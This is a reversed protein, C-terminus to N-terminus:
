IMICEVEEGSLPNIREEEIVILCNSVSMQVLNGSSELGVPSASVNGNEDRELFGRIFHRKSDTKVIDGRLIAKVSTLEDLGFCKLMNAKVLLYFTVLSSVPNGPLGFVPQLRGNDRKVGFLVPKGPKINIKHFVTEIGLEGSIDKVFDYKGVSVGGTTVLVDCKELAFAMAAKIESRNDRAIGFNLAIMGMEKIASLISYLNSARIKDGSPTQEIRILEDGTVLVGIKLREFVRVQSKGCAALAAIQPAKLFTGKRLVTEGKLVDQGKKSVNMGKVLRANTNLILNDERVFADEIPIVTDFGDPLRSGTMISVASLNDLSGSSSYNGSNTFNGAQIEGKVIWSRISQDFRIAFGDMASNNFSPLDVDSTVDEAITRGQADLISVLETGPTLKKLANIVLENAQRFSIM